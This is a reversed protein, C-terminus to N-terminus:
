DFAALALDARDTVIGDVGLDVIRRMDDPDNVTWVHVEVGHRHATAVLAPTLVRVGRFREPIQVADVGQLLRGLPARVASGIRLRAMTGQGASTAPAADAGADEVARLATRRRADSFSTLLVRDTHAAVHPGIAAAAADSKVDINFRTEPFAELAEAVTLLGGHEAYLEALERTRVQDVARPDGAIRELTPDHVLVVDGDASVHCDTEIYEAGAANAAAFAAATNEWILPDADAVLGRHALVRPHAAGAFYLHTM